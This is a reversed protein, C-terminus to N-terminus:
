QSTFSGILSASGGTHCTTGGNNWYLNFTSAATLTYPITTKYYVPNSYTPTTNPTPITSTNNVQTFGNTYASGWASPGVVYLTFLNNAALATSVAIYITTTSDPVSTAGNEPYVLVLSAPPICPGNVPTPTPGYYPNGGNNCGAFLLPTVAIMAIFSLSRKM